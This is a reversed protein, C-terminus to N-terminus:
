MMNTFRFNFFHHTIKSKYAIDIHSQSNMQVLM